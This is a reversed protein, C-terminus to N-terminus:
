QKQYVHSDLLGVNGRSDGWHDTADLKILEGGIGGLRPLSLAWNKGVLRNDPKCGCRCGM